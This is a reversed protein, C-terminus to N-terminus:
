RLGYGEIFAELRGKRSRARTINLRQGTPLIEHITGDRFKQRGPKNPYFYCILKRM